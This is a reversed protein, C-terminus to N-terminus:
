CCIQPLLCVRCAALRCCQGTVSALSPIQETSKDLWSLADAEINLVGPIHQLQIKPLQIGAYVLFASTLRALPQLRPDRTTACLRLWTLATTNDSWLDVVFGSSLRPAFRRWVIILWVNIIAAIFELPNIHLGSALGDLPEQQYRDIEKMPFGLLVLDVRMIRWLFSADPSWGGLGAYSADSFFAAHATRAVLMGVPRLWLLPAADACTLWSQLLSLDKVAGSSLWIHSRSWWTRTPVGHLLARRYNTALASQLSHSM